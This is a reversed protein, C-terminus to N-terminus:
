ARKSTIKYFQATEKSSPFYGNKLMFRKKLKNIIVISVKKYGSQNPNICIIEFDKGRRNERLRRSVTDAHNYKSPPYLRFVDNKLDWLGFEYDMPYRDLLVKVAESMSCVGMAKKPLGM